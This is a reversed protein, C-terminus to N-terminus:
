HPGSPAAPFWVESGSVPEPALKYLNLQYIQHGSTTGSGLLNATTSVVVFHVGPEAVAQATNGVDIPMRYRQDAFLFQLYGDGGCTYAIRYDSSTDDVSPDVCGGPEQTLQAFRRDTTDYAFIQTKGTDHGDGALAATSQFALVRGDKSVTPRTSPGNGDTIAEAEATGHALWIQAVGTDAGTIPDSTSDFAIVSGLRNLVPNHSEGDGQSIRRFTSLGDWLFVHPVQSDGLGALDGSSEFALQRGRGSLAPDISTGTPDHTVQIVRSGKLLFIQRGPEPCGASACDADWAVVFGGSSVTPNRNDGQTTIPSLAKRDKTLRFVQSGNTDMAVALRTGAARVRPLETDGSFTLQVIPPTQRHYAAAPAALSLLCLLTTTKTM